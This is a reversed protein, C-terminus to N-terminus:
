LEYIWREMEDKKDIKGFLAITDGAKLFIDSSINIIENDRILIAKISDIKLEIINKGISESNSYIKRIFIVGAGGCYHRQTVIQSSSINELIAYYAGAKPGRVVILGLKHMLSYYDKDSNIAVVKKVGLDKSEIAKIINKEDNLYTSIVMDASDVGEEEFLQSDEFNSNIVTVEGDLYQLAEKCLKKDKDIIKIQIKKSLIEKAIKQSLENAGFIVVKKIIDPMFNNLKKAVERIEEIDGFLYLLDDKELLFNNDVIEFNKDREIGVSIINGKLIDSLLYRHDGKYDVIISALKFSTQHFYKVNNLRPFELLAKVKKATTLNPFVAFNISLKELIKSSLFSDNKLRVIKSQVNVVDDVIITSLLNAEDNNTVAIYLNAEDIELKTFTKPNEIDGHITLIDLDESITNLKDFDKDIVVVSHKYSLIKALSYGVSGAGAIIIYM